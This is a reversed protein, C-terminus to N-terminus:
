EGIFNATRKELFAAVGEAYDKTHAAKYQLTDELQLQQELNNQMSANLAQKTYALGLTPMAALTCVIKKSEIEFEADDIEKFEIKTELKSDELREIKLIEGAKVKYQKGGTQIIAYSM